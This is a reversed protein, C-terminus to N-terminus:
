IFCTFTIWIVYLLHCYSSSFYLKAVTNHVQFFFEKYFFFLLFYLTNDLPILSIFLLFWWRFSVFQRGKNQPDDCSHRRYNVFFGNVFHLTIFLECKNKM